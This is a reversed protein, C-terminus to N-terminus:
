KSTCLIMETIGWNLEGDTDDSYDATVNESESQQSGLPRTLSLLLPLRVVM